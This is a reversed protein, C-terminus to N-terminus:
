TLTTVVTAACKLATASLLWYEQFHVLSLGMFIKLRTAVAEL